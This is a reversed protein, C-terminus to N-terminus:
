RIGMRLLSLWSCGPLMAYLKRMPYSSKVQGNEVVEIMVDVHDGINVKLEGSPSKVRSNLDLESKLGVYVTVFDNTIDTVTGGIVEGVGLNVNPLVQELLTEFEHTTTM